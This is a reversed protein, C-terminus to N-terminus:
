RKPLLNPNIGIGVLISPESRYIVVVTNDLDEVRRAGVRRLFEEIDRTNIMDWYTSNGHDETSLDFHLGIQTDDRGVLGFYPGDLRAKKETYKGKGRGVDRFWASGNFQDYGNKPTKSM